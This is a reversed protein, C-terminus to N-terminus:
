SYAQNSSRTNSFRAALDQTLIESHRLAGKFRVKHNKNLEKLYRRTEAKYAYWSLYELGSRCSTLSPSLMM